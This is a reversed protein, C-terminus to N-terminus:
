IQDLTDDESDPLEKYILRPFQISDNNDLYTKINKNPNHNEQISTSVSNNKLNQQNISTKPEKYVISTNSQDLILPKMYYNKPNNLNLESNELNLVVSKDQLLTSENIDHFNTKSNKEILNNLKM